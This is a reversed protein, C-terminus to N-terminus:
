VHGAFSAGVVFVNLKGFLNFILFEHAWHFQKLLVKPKKYLDFSLAVIKLFGFFPFKTNFSQRVNQSLISWLLFFRDALL